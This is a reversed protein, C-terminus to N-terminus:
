PPSPAPSDSGPPWQHVGSTWRLMRYYFTAEGDSPVELGCWTQTLGGPFAVTIDHKGPEVHLPIVFVSRPTMEWSRTDAASSAKLLAGVAMVGLGVAATGGDRRDAGYITAGAGAVMLGTGLYSKTKRITDLKQWRRDQAMVISDFLPEDFASVERPSGDITAQMPPVPGVQGPSPFFGLANGDMGEEIKRPGFGFEVYLLANNKPDALAEALPKLEPRYQVALNFYRRSEDPNHLQMWTRGLMLLAVAFDSEHENYSEPKKPDAYDRLKFLANEFAGRANGYDRAQYYIMGLQLNAIAREYPEGRWVKNSELLWTARAERGADNVKTANLIQYAKVYATEATDFDYTALASAGLRLNNLVYNENEKNALPELNRVAGAFNGSMYSDVGVRANIEDKTPACGALIAASLIGLALNWIGFSSQRRTTGQREENPMQFKAGPMKM